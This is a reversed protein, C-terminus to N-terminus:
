ISICFDEPSPYGHIKRALKRPLLIIQIFPLNNKEISATIIIPM